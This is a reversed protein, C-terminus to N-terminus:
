NWNELPDFSLKNNHYAIYSTGHVSISQLENYYRSIECMFIRAGSFTLSVLNCKTDGILCVDFTYSYTRSVEGVYEFDLM